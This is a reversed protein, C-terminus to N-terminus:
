VTVFLIQIWYKFHWYSLTCKGEKLNCRMYNLANRLRRLKRNKLYFIIYFYM